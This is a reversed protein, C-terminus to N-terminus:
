FGSFDFSSWECQSMKKWEGSVLEVPYIGPCLPDSYCIVNSRNQWMVRTRMGGAFCEISTNFGSGMVDISIPQDEPAYAPSFTLLSPVANENDQMVITDPDVIRM